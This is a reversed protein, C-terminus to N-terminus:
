LAKDILTIPPTAKVAAIACAVPLLLFILIPVTYDGTFDYLLGFPLPGMAAFGVMATTTVGRISGLYARGYYNPWIVGNINMFLGGGFGLMGGYLLAEWRDSIFFTWVLALIMAVQAWALLFRNPFKDVLFGAVFNGILALPAMVSLALAAVGAGLGMSNFFSVQHFVLATGILSQSSGAFLLLWFSRTGLAERLTFDIQVLCSSPGAQDTSLAYDIDGDPTLGVSEPTRRILCAAPVLLTAWIVFSIAIWAGRWGLETILYHIFPPFIAQSAVIGISNLAMAKGRLRVFWLAILTTPILILSGQGLTRIATFGVYLQVPDDVRSMGLAALGFLGGIVFLMTRAGYRDLLRGVLMMLGAASLSGATYLSSILTRSWGLDDILPDVFLSVSYTQGPGSAFMALSAVPLIVWGYFVPLRSGFFITDGERDGTKM